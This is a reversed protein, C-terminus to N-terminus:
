APRAGARARIDLWTDGIGIIMAVGFLVPAALVLGIIFTVYGFLTLGGSMFLFVGAGRLAYLAGMFVVTNSGVRALAEGRQLVLLLLGAVLLWVLHDNFRFDQVRGLGQDGEGVLRARLWWALGVAAMSALGVLAPYVAVQAEAVQQLATVMAPSLGGEGALLSMAYITADVGERVSEAIAVDLSGWADGRLALFGAALVVAGIVSGLARSSLAWAPAVMTLGLFGGGVLVSWAREAFWIGDRTGSAVILTALAAAVVVRPRRLGDASLLLLLPVAILVGPRLVSTALVVALLGVAGAWGRARAGEAQTDHDM